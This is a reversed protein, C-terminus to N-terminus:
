KKRSSEVVTVKFDIQHCLCSFFEDLQPAVYSPYRKQLSIIWHFRRFIGMLSLIYRYTKEKWSVRQSKMSGLDLQLQSMVRKAKVPQPVAKNTFKANFKLYKLNNKTIDHIRRESLGIYSNAARLRM